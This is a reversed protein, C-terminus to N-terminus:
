DGLDMLEEGCGDEHDARVSDDVVEGCNHDHDRGHELMYVPIVLNIKKHAGHIAALAAVKEQVASQATRKQGTKAALDFGLKKIIDASYALRIPWRKHRTNQKGTASPKDEASSSSRKATKAGIERAKAVARMGEKDREFLGKLKRDADEEGSLGWQRQPDYDPKRKKSSSSSMGSTRFFPTM